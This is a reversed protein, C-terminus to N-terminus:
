KDESPDSEATWNSFRMWPDVEPPRLFFTMPLDTEPHRFGLFCSWLAIGRGEEPAGYKGDGVLPMGRAAFQARIQHTRGTGLTIEVLSRHSVTELTRYSLEAALVGKGPTDTVYTKREQPSRWLLDRMDGEPAEPVGHVVAFYRKEFRRERIDQSLIAAARQSRAFVMLGGVVQDLRHVTRVCAEPQGLTQRIREPMGGPENTSRVGVPKVAVLIRRDQYIIPIEM